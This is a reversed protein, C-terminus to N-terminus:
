RLETAGSPDVVEIWTVGPRFAIEGGGPGYFRTRAADNEKRWTAEIVRGTNFVQARGQGVNDILVHGDEDAVQSKAYQVVVNAAAVPRGSRGDVQPGGFQSRLYTGSAEDWEWRPSFGSLTGFRVAFSRAITLPSEVPASSFRLAAVRGSRVFGREDGAKRIATTSTFVNHPAERAGDRTFAAPAPKPGSEMDLDDVRWEALQQGANAPGSTEASGVHALIADYELAWHLFPTRASRVPAISEAERSQYIAMLRTIGGEVLAEIVVDARDLGAHPAADASNDIMVAIPRRAAVAADTVPVGTLPAIRQPSETPSPAPTPPAPSSAVTAAEGAAAQAPGDDFLALKLAGVALFAAVAMVGGVASERLNM